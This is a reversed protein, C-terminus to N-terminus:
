FPIDETPDATIFDRRSYHPSYEPIVVPNTPLFRPWFPDNVEDQTFVRMDAAVVHRMFEAAEVKADFLQGESSEARRRDAEDLDYRAQFSADWANMGGMFYSSGLEAEMESRIQEGEYYSELVSQAELKPLFPIFM